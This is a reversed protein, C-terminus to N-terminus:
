GRHTFYPCQEGHSTIPLLDKECVILPLNIGEVDDLSKYHWCQQCLEQQSLIVLDRYLKMINQQLVERQNAATTKRM